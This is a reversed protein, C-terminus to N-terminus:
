AGDPLRMQSGSQLLQRLRRDVQTDRHGAPGTALLPELRDQLRGTHPDSQREPCCLGLSLSQQGDPARTRPTAPPPPRASRSLGPCTPLAPGSSPGQGPQAASPCSQPGIQRWLWSGSLQALGSPDGLDSLLLLDEQALPDPLQMRDAGLVRYGCRRCGRGMARPPHPGPGSPVPSPGHGAGPSGAIAGGPSRRHHGLTPM